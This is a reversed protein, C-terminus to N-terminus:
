DNEICKKMGLFDCFGFSGDECVHNDYRHGFYPQNGLQTNEELILCNIIHLANDEEMEDFKQSFIKGCLRCKYIANYKRM